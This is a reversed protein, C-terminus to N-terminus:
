RILKIARLGPAPPLGWVVEPYRLMASEAGARTEFTVLIVRERPNDVDYGFEISEIRNEPEPLQQGLVSISMMEQNVVPGGNEISVTRYNVMAPPPVTLAVYPPEYDFLNCEVAIRRVIYSVTVEVGQKMGKEQIMRGSQAYAWRAGASSSYQAWGHNVSLRSPDYRLSPNSVSAGLEAESALTGGQLLWKQLRLLTITPTVLGEILVAHMDNEHIQPDLDIIPVFNQDVCRLPTTPLPPLAPTSTSASPQASHLQPAM